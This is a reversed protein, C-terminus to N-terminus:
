AVLCQAAREVTLAARACCDRAVSRILRSGVILERSAVCLDSSRNLLHELYDM